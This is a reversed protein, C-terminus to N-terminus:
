KHHRASDYLGLLWIILATIILFVVLAGIQITSPTHSVAYAGVGLLASWVYIILVTQRQTFGRGLLRHHIHQRDAHQVAEGHRLRRAIASATDFIPVAVILLPVALAIAATTKLLGMMAIVGLLYGLLLAGEDGMFISAPHFNYRLFGLCSGIVLAALIVAVTQNNGRALLLMTVAAIACIGGALGDLGDILNIINAFAVLFFISLPIALIGIDQVQGAWPLMVFSIRVGCITVVAAALIQGVLKLGPSLDVLDDILGTAYIITAGGLIGVLVLPRTTADSFFGKWGAFREGILQIAVMALIAVFIATGGLEPTPKKHIKREGPAAVWGRRHALNRAVPTLIFSILTAGAILVLTHLISM